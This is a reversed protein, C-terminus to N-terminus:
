PRQAQRLPDKLDAGNGTFGIHYGIGDGDVNEVTDSLYPPAPDNM